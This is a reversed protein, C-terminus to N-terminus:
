SPHQQTELQREAQSLQIYNPTLSTSLNQVQLAHAHQCIWDAMAEARSRIIPRQQWTDSPMTIPSSCVYHAAQEQPIDALTCCADDRLAKGGQYCGIFVEGVRADEIVWINSHNDQACQMSSIALSSIGWMPLQLSANIGTMTAAAIRLGTFSGPGQGLALLKLDSWHIDAQQLLETCLPLVSHSYQSGEKASACFRQGNPTLVCAHAVSTSMDLGLIPAHNLRM